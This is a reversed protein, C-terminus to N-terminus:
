RLIGLCPEHFVFARSSPRSHGKPLDSPWDSGGSSPGEFVVTVRLCLCEQPDEPLTQDLSGLGTQLYYKDNM